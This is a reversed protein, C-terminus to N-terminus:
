RTRGRRRAVGRIAGYVEALLAEAARVDSMASDFTAGDPEAVVKPRSVPPHMDNHDFMMRPEVFAYDPLTGNAADEHFQAMSRFNTRWYREISPAHLFGTLSVVQDADFYM